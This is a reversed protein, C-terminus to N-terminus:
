IMKLILKHALAGTLIEAKLTNKNGPGSGAGGGRQDGGTQTEWFVGAREDGHRTQTKPGATRVRRVIFNFRRSRRRMSASELGM